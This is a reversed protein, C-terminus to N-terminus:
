ELYKMNVQFLKPVGNEDRLVLEDFAKQGKVCEDKGEDGGEVKRV